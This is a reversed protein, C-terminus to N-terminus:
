ASVHRKHWAGKAASVNSGIGGDPGGGALHSIIEDLPREKGITGDAGTRPAGALDPVASLVAVRTRPHAARIEGLVEVGDGDPVSLDVIAM